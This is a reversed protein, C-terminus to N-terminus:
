TRDLLILLMVVRTKALISHKLGAAMHAWAGAGLEFRDEGLTVTAEGEVIQIMAAVSATHESLEQGADFGFLIAKCGEARLFTKSVISQAQIEGVAGALSEVLTYGKEFSM